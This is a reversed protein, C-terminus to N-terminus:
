RGKADMPRQEVPGLQRAEAWSRERTNAPFGAGALPDRPFPPVPEVGEPYRLPDFVKEIRRAFDVYFERDAFLDLLLDEDLVWNGIGDEVYVGQPVLMEDEIEQLAFYYPKMGKWVKRYIRGVILKQAERKGGFCFDEATEFLAKQLVSPLMRQPFTVVSHGNLFRAPYGPIRRHLLRKWDRTRPTIGQCYLQITFCGVQEAFTAIERVSRETDNAYGAIFSASFRFDFRRLREATDIYVPMDSDKRMDELTANEVSELGMSINWIGAKRMLRLFSDSFGENGHSFQDARCLVTFTPKRSRDEFHRVLAELLETTADLDAGFLNDVVMFRDVGTHELAHSVDHVFDEVPRVFYGAKGFLSTWSCFSCFYTCGRSAQVPLQTLSLRSKVDRSGVFTSFDYRYNIEARSQRGSSVQWDGMEDRYWLGPITSLARDRASSDALELANLLPIVTNDGEYLVIVDAYRQAEQPFM